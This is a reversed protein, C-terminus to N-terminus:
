IITFYQLLKIVVWIVFGAMGCSLVVGFFWLVIFVIQMLNFNRNFSKNFDSHM